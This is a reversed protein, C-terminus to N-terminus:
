VNLVDGAGYGATVTVFCVIKPAYCLILDVPCFTHGSNQFMNQFIVLM